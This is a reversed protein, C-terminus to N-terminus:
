LKISGNSLEDIIKLYRKDFIFNKTETTNAKPQTNLRFPTTIITQYKNYITEKNKSLNKSLLTMEEGLSAYGMVLGFFSLQKIGLFTKEIFVPAGSTGPLALGYPRRDGIWSKLAFYRRQISEAANPHPKQPLQSAPDFFISSLMVTRYNTLADEDINPFFLRWEFLYFSRKLQFSSIDSNGWTTILMPEDPSLTIEEEIHIPVIHAVPKSLKLFAIDFKHQDGPEFRIYPSDLLVYEVEYTISDYPTKNFTVTLMKPIILIYSGFDKTPYETDLLLKMGHAATIVINNRVLIGSQSFGLNKDVILAATEHYNTSYALLMHDATTHSGAM